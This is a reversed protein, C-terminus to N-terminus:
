SIFKLIRKKLYKEYIQVAETVLEVTDENQKKVGKRYGHIEVKGHIVKNREEFLKEITQLYDKLENQSSSAVEAILPAKELVTPTIQKNKFVSHQRPPFLSDFASVLFVLQLSTEENNLFEIYWYLSNCLQVRASELNKDTQHTVLELFVKNAFKSGEKKDLFELHEAKSSRIPSVFNARYRGSSDYVMATPNDRALKDTKLNETILHVALFIGFIRDPSYSSELFAKKGTIVLGSDHILLYFQDPTLIQSNSSQKNGRLMKDFDSMPNIKKQSDVFKQDSKFISINESLKEAQLPYGDPLKFYFGYKFPVGSLFKHASAAFEAKEEDSLQKNQDKWDHYKLLQNFIVNWLLDWDIGDDYLNDNLIERHKDFDLTDTDVLGDKLAANKVFEKLLNEPNKKSM